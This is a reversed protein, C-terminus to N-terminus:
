RRYSMQLLFLKQHKKLATEAFSKLSFSKVILKMLFKILVNRFWFNRVRQIHSMVGRQENRLIAM